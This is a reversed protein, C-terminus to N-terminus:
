QNYFFVSNMIDSAARGHTRRRWITGARHGREAAPDRASTVDHQRRHAARALAAGRPHVLQYQHRRGPPLLVPARLEQALHLAARAAAAAAGRVPGRRHRAFTPLVRGPM